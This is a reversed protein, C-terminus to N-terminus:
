MTFITITKIQGDKVGWTSQKTPTTPRLSTGHTIDGKFGGKCSGNGNEISNNWPQYNAKTNWILTDILSLYDFSGGLPTSM